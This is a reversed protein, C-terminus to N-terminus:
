RVSPQLRAARTGLRVWPAAMARGRRARPAVALLEWQQKRCGHMRPLSSLLTCRVAAAASCVGLVSGVGLPRTHVASDVM